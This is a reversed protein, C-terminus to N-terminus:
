QESQTLDNDNQVLHVQHIEGLLTEIDDERFDLQFLIQLAKERAKRRSGVKRDKM